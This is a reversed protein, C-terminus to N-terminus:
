QALDGGPRFGPISDDNDAKRAALSQDFAFRRLALDSELAFRDNALGAEFDAKERALQAEEAAEDRRLQSKVAAEERMLEIRAMAQEHDQAQKQAKVQGDVQAKVAEPDPKEPAPGMQSPDAWFDTAVGLSTDEVFAKVNNFVQEEGVGRLGGEIAARQLGMLERRFAIRQDKNGTGLGVTINIDPDAPWKSPDVLTYKGDIKMKFPPLHDRMLRYRKAFMPAVLSEAMNRCVYLEVQQANQQLMAMGGYTKNTTDPNLGQSQRTIGTRSEREASQMEMGQFAISSVDPQQFPIPAQNGKYRIIGGARVSLLDDYTDETVSSEHVLVRPATSMYSSDLGQRLLVSRIRQIDMTKDAISQGVFRHASPFPSWGSYPQEEVEFVALVHSGIRMVCLREAIGDGNLDFLPYEWKLWVMRNVGPRSGITNRDTSRNDDRAQEVVTSVNADGWITELDEKNFGMAIVDSMSVPQDDGVYPSEDLDVTDPSVRFWENPINRDRVIPPQAVEWTVRTPANLPDLAATDPDVLEASLIPRGNVSLEGEMEGVIAGNPVEAQEILPARMELYTKVIGTKELMGAKGADHLIRYGKQRRMFQYHVAATAEAGYDAERMVPQGQEDAEGTPVDEPETDFEVAKGGATLTGLIGILMRDTVEAVDRTVAQSRGEEEDGYKDGNYARIAVARQDDLTADKARSEETQLFSRLDDPVVPLAM